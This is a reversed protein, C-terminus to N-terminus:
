LINEGPNVVVGDTERGPGSDGGTRPPTIHPKTNRKWKHYKWENMIVISLDEYQM